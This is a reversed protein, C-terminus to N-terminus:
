DTGPGFGGTERKLELWDELVVQMSGKIKRQNRPKLFGIGEWSKLSTAVIQASGAMPM